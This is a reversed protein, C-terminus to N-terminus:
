VCSTAYNLWEYARIDAYRHWADQATKVRNRMAAFATL